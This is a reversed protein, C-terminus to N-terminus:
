TQISISYNPVKTILNVSAHTYLVFDHPSFSEALAHFDAARQLKRRRRRSRKRTATAATSSVFESYASSARTSLHDVFEEWSGTIGHYITSWMQRIFTAVLTPHPTGEGDVYDLLLLADLPQLLSPVYKLLLAYVM